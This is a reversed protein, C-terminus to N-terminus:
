FDDPLPELFWAKSAAHWKRIQVKLTNVGRHKAAMSELDDNCLGMSQREKEILEAKDQLAQQLAVKDRSLEERETSTRDLDTQLTERAMTAASLREHLHANDRLLSDLQGVTTHLEDVQSTLEMDIALTASKIHAQLAYSAATFAVPAFIIAVLLAIASMVYMPPVHSYHHLARSQLRQWTPKALESREGTIVEERWSEYKQLSNTKLDKWAEAEGM